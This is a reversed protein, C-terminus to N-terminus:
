KITIRVVIVLKQKWLGCLLQHLVVGRAYPRVRHLLVYGAAGSQYRTQIVGKGGITQVAINAWCTVGGVRRRNLKRQPVHRALDVSELAIDGTPFHLYSCYM